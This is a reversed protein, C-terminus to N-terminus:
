KIKGFYVNENTHTEKLPIIITSPGLNEPETWARLAWVIKKGPTVEIAQVPQNKMNVKGDGSWENYWTNIITNGNALRVSVQPSTISYNVLEKLPCDWITENERNVERVYNNSTILFNGNRLPEASWVGPVKMSYLEKGDVDYECVKGMDMHAVIITGKNTLRAHRFQGHISTPNGVPMVLEKIIEGSKKNIVMLKAPNGNQIFIVLKKGIPQATHIETGEPADYNWLIEKKQNIETIGFQHAFLINGNSLMVADSIEGKPTPHTYSWVIKGKRVIYMNEKKAEGAYFFDFHSLGNGPLVEPSLLQSISKTPTQAISQQNIGVNAISILLLGTGSLSKFFTVFSKITM